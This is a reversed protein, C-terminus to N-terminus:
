DPRPNHDAELIDFYLRDFRASDRSDFLPDGPQNMARDLADLQRTGLQDAVLPFLVEDELDLHELQLALYNNADAELTSRPVVTGQIVAELDTRLSRALEPLVQHQRSVRELADLAVPDLSERDLLELVRDEAPHHWQNGYDAIYELVTLLRDYDPDDDQDFRDLQARLVFLLRKLRKHDSAFRELLESM